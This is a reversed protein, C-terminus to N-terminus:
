NSGRPVFSIISGNVSVVVCAHSFIGCSVAVTLRYVKIPKLPQGSTTIVLITGDACQTIDAAASECNDLIAKGMITETKQQLGVAIQLM